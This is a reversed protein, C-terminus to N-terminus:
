TIDSLNKAVNGDLVDIIVDKVNLKKIERFNEKVLSILCIDLRKRGYNALPELVM